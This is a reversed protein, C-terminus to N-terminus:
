KLDKNTPVFRAALELRSLTVEEEARECLLDVLAMRDNENGEVDICRHSYRRLSLSCSRPVDTIDIKNPDSRAQRLIFDLTVGDDMLDERLRLSNLPMAPCLDRLKTQLATAGRSRPMKVGRLALADVFDKESKCDPHVKFYHPCYSDRYSM